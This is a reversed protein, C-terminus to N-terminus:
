SRLAEAPDVAAAGRAPLWAATAALAVVAVAVAGITLPDGPTVGFLLSALLGGTGISAVVGALAGVLALRAGDAVLAGVVGASTAGVALRIAIERRRRQVLQHVVAVLGLLALSVGAAGLATLLRSLLREHALADAIRDDLARAVGMPLAPDVAAIARRVAPGIAAAPGAACRWSREHSIWFFVEAPTQAIPLWIEPLPAGRPGADRSDGAVGVIQWVRSGDPGNFVPAGFVVDRGVPSGGPSLRGALTENVVVVPRTAAADRRAIDRGAVLRIGMATLYGPSVLRVRAQRDVGPLAPAGALMVDPGASGGDFPVRSAVAAATVGPLAAVGDVVREIAQAVDAATRYTAAPLALSATMVGRADHGRPAAELAMATQTLLAGACALVVALAVQGAM